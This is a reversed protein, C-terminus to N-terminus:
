KEQGHESLGEGRTPSKGRLFNQFICVDWLAPTLMGTLKSPQWSSTLLVRRAEPPRSFLSASADGVEARTAGWERRGEARM